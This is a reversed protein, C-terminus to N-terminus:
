AATRNDIGPYNIITAPRLIRPNKSPESLELWSPKTRPGGGSSKTMGPDEICQSKFNPRRLVYEGYISYHMSLSLFIFDIALISGQWPLTPVMPLETWGHLIGLVWLTPHLLCSVRTGLIRPPPAVLERCISLRVSTVLRIARVDGSLILGYGAVRGSFHLFGGPCFPFVRAFFRECAM